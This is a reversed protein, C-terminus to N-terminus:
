GVGGDISGAEGRRRKGRKVRVARVDAVELEDGILAMEIGNDVAAGAKGAAGSVLPLAEQLAGLPMNEALEQADVVNTLESVFGGLSDVIERVVEATEGHSRGLGLLFRVFVVVGVFQEDREGFAGRSKGVVHRSPAECKRAQEVRGQGGIAAGLKRRVLERRLVRQKRLIVLEVGEALKAGVGGSSEFRNGIL